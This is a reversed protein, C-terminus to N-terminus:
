RRLADNRASKTVQTPEKSSRRDVDEARKWDPQKDNQQRHRTKVRACTWSLLAPGTLSPSTHFRGHSAPVSPRGPSPCSPCCGSPPSLRSIWRGHDPSQYFLNKLNDQDNFMGAGHGWSDPPNLTVPPDRQTGCPRQRWVPFGGSGGCVWWPAGHVSVTRLWAALSGYGLPSAGFHGETGYRLGRSTAQSALLALSPGLRM